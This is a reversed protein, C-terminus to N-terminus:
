FRRVAVFYVGGVIVISVLFITLWGFGGGGEEQEAELDIVDKAEQLNELEENSYQLDSDVEPMVYNPDRGIGEKEMQEIKEELEQLRAEDFRSKDISHWHHFMWDITVYRFFLNDYPDNYIVYPTDYRYYMNVPKHSNYFINRRKSRTQMNKATLSDSLPKNETVVQRYTKSTQQGRASTTFKSKSDAKQAAQALSTGRTTTKSRSNFISGKKSRTTARSTYSNTKKKSTFSRGKSSKRSSSTSRSKSRSSFSRSRGRKAFADNILLLHSALFVIMLFLSLRRLTTKM